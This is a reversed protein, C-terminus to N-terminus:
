DGEGDVPKVMFLAPNEPGWITLFEELAVFGMASYFARTRAYPEYGASPGQTKVTLYRAGAESAACVAAEVLARGVGQRHAASRVALFYIEWADPGHSKLIMLGLAEGDAEALWSPGAEALAAYEANSEPLGFWQPVTALIKRCIDGAGSPRRIIQITM